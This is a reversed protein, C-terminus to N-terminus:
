LLFYLSTLYLEGFGRVPNKLGTQSSLKGTSYAGLFSLLLWEGHGFLLGAM